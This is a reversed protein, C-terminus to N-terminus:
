NISIIAVNDPATTSAPRSNSAAAGPTDFMRQCSEVTNRLPKECLVHEGAMLASVVAAEHFQLPSSVIVAELRPLDLLEELDVCGGRPHGGGSARRQSAIRRPGRGRDGSQASHYEAPSGMTGAGVVAFRM